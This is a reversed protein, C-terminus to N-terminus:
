VEAVLQPEVWHVGKRPAGKPLTVTPDSSALADLRQRLDGLQVASFGTGVRGAYRLRGAPDYYGVLFAGFGERRGEPDTFGLVIFEDRNRCKIKLWTGSRGPRYPADRRKSVIGELGLSSAQRLVAPGHGAQHDSYRLIGASQLPNIESLAAKRDELSAGTLDWGDRYLLDFAFFNLAGTKGTSIADQLDSFSTTGDSALCVLEGDILATGIPLRAFNQALEPFKATWDLGNRTTLRVDGHEIRALLRYGDYKIEHLWEPGDPATAAVSALQPKLNRPLPGQRAGPIDGPSRLETKEGPRSDWVRDRDQAIADLSRGTEVSRPNTTVVATASDPVAAEDR